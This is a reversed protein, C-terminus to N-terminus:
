EEDVERIMIFMDYRGDKNKAEMMRFAIVESNLVTRCKAGQKKLRRRDLKKMIPQSLFGSNLLERVNRVYIWCTMPCDLRENKILIQMGTTDDYYKGCRDCRYANM